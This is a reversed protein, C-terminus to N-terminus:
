QGITLMIRYDAPADGNTFAKIVYKKGPELVPTQGIEFTQGEATVQITVGARTFTDGFGISNTNEPLTFSIFDVDTKSGLQGCFTGSAGPIAQALDLTDNGEKEVISGAPCNKPGSGTGGGTGGGTGTGSGPGGESAGGDTTNNTPVPDSAPAPAPPAANDGGIPADAAPRDPASTSPDSSQQDDGSSSSCAAALALLAFALPARLTMRLGM